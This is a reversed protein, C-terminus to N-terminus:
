LKFFGRLWGWFGELPGLRSDQSALVSARVLEALQAEAGSTPPKDPEPPRAPYVGPEFLRYNLVPWQNHGISGTWPDMILGDGIWVVFHSQIGPAPSYDLQAGCLKMPNKGELKKYGAFGLLKAVKDKDGILGEPTFCDNKNLISLVEIPDQEALSALMIVFCGAMGMTLGSQGLKLDRWRKDRQGYIKM